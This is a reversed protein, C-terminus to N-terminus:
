GFYRYQCKFIWFTTKFLLSYLLMIVAPFYKSPSAIRQGKRTDTFPDTIRAAIVSDYNSNSLVM